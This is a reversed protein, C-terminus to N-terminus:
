LRPYNMQNQHPTPNNPGTQPFTQHSFGPPIQPNHYPFSQRPQYSNCHEPYVPQYSHRYEMASLQQAYSPFYPPQQNYGYSQPNPNFNQPGANFNQPSHNFNQPSHNFNRPSHNFNQPCHNFNQPSHNFRHPNPNFNQTSPNFNQSSPNYNQPNPNFNPARLNFNSPGARFHPPRPSYPHPSQNRSFSQNQATSDVSASRNRSIVNRSPPKPSNGDNVNNTNRSNKNQKRNKKALKEAEDDSYDLLEPPPENNHKWSADSGKMKLLQSVLVFSSHETEPACFVPEKILVNFTKIHDPNNFRVAYFPKNVPGFVDFVKGLARKGRDLFLISDIDLAPQNFFAEVVM